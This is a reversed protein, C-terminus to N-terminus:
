SQRSSLWSSRQCPLRGIGLRGSSQPWRTAGVPVHTVPNRSAPQRNHFRQLQHRRRDVPSQRRKLEHVPLQQPLHLSLRTHCFWPNRHSESGTCAILEGLYVCPHLAVTTSADFEEELSVYRVHPAIDKAASTGDGLTM